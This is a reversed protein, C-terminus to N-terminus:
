SKKENRGSCKWQNERIKHLSLFSPFFPQLLEMLAFNFVKENVTTSSTGKSKKKDDKLPFDEENKYFYILLSFVFFTQKTSPFFIEFTSSSVCFYRWPM